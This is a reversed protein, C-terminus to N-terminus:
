HLNTSLLAAQLSTSIDVVTPCNLGLSVFDDELFCLLVSELGVQIEWFDEETVQLIMSYCYNPHTSSSFIIYNLQKVTLKTTNCTFLKLHNTDLAM